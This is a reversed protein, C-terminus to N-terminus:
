TRAPEISRSSCCVRMCTVSTVSTSASYDIRGSEASEADVALHYLAPGLRENRPRVRALVNGAPTRPDDVFLGGNYPPVGWETQGGAIATFTETLDSWIDTAEAAFERGSEVTAVVSDIRQRLSHDRYGASANVPLYERSEAYLVFLLRYLLVLTAQYVADLQERAEPREGLRDLEDAVSRAISPVVREYIRDRLRDGLGVAFDRSGEGIREALGGRRLATASFLAAFYGPENLRALDLEVFSTMRAPHQASYIRWLEGSVLVGWDVGAAEMERLLTAVPLEGGASARDLDRSAPYSLVAAAPRNEARLVYIGEGRQEYEFGLASLRDLVTRRAAAEKGVRELERWECDLCAPM